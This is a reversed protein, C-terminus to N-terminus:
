VGGWNDINHNERFSLQDDVWQYLKLLYSLMIFASAITGITNSWASVGMDEYLTNVCPLTLNKNVYPIPLVVPQCSKSLNNTINNLLALPLNLISDVPGPPLWGASNELASLDAGETSTINSNLDDLKSNTQNNQDIITQNQEELKSFGEKFTSELVLGTGADELQYGYFVFTGGDRSGAKFPLVLAASNIAPTFTISYICANLTDEGYRLGSGDITGSNLYKWSQQGTLSLNELTGFQEWSYISCGTSPASWAYTVRYTNSTLLANETYVGAGFGYTASSMEHYYVFYETGFNPVILSYNKGNNGSNFDLFYVTSGYSLDDYSLAKVEKFWSFAFFSLVGLAIYFLFRGLTRCFSGLTWNIIKQIMKM